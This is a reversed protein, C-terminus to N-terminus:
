GERWGASADESLTGTLVSRPSIAPTPLKMGLYGAQGLGMLIMLASDIDPLRVLMDPQGLGVHVLRVTDAVYIAAALATWALMQSKGLDPVGSDDTFLWRLSHGGSTNFSPRVRGTSLQALKLGKAAAGTTASLGMALLVNSPFDEIPATMGTVFRAVYLATYCYLVVYTWLMWQFKSTSTRRDAGEALKLPNPSGSSWWGIAWLGLAPLCGAALPHLSM